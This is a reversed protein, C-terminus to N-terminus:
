LEAIRQLATEVEPWSLYRLVDNTIPTTYCIAWEDVMGIIVAVEYTDHADHVVSAGYDNNFFYLQQYAHKIM